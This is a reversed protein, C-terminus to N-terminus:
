HEPQLEVFFNKKEFIEEFAMLAQRYRGYVGTPARSVKQLTNKCDLNKKVCKNLPNGGIDAMDQGGIIIVAM